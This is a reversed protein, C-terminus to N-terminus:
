GAFDPGDPNAMKVLDNGDIRLPPLTLADDIAHRLASIVEHVTEGGFDAPDATWGQPTGDSDYYVEHLRYQDSSGGNVDGTYILIRYNWTMRQLRYIAARLVFSGHDHGHWQDSVRVRGAAV